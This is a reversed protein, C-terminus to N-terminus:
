RKGGIVTSQSPAASAAPPGGAQPTARGRGFRDRVVAGAVLSMFAANTTVYRRGLRVPEQQVRYLWELGHDQYWAPARRTLGALIDFSGGVGHVISAGTAEGCRNMFLEKKPSSMGVFLLDAGSNRIEAVVDPEDRPEFYGDRSGAIQLRPYRRGVEQLMQALVEPRAGLFFARRAHRAGEALLEQFLDIGAVREPLPTRLIRSAWVVSQGDALILDCGSVAQRLAADRRMAIIKAANVVGVSLQGGTDMTEVCRSVAQSMTVGDIALGLIQQRVPSTSGDGM